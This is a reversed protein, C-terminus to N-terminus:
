MADLLGLDHNFEEQDYQVSIKHLRLYAIMEWVPVGADRAARAVSSRGQGYEKGAQELKWQGVANGLLKRVTTSRDTHETREIRELERVLERPLRTGIMTEHKM